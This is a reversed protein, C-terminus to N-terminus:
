QVTSIVGRDLVTEGRHVEVVLRRHDGRTRGRNVGGSCWSLREQQVWFSLGGSLRLCVILLRDNILTDICSFLLGTDPSVTHAIRVLLQM